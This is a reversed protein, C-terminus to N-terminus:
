QGPTVINENSHVNGGTTKIFPPKYVDVRMSISTSKTGRVCTLTYTYPSSAVSLVGLSETGNVSKDGNWNGSATCSVANTSSWKLTVPVDDTIQAKPPHQSNLGTVLSLDVTPPCVLTTYQSTQSLAGNWVRVYLTRNSDPISGLSSGGNPGFGQWDIDIPLTTSGSNDGPNAGVWKSYRNAFTSSDSVDVSYGISGFFNGPNGTWNILASTSCDAPPVLTTAVACYEGVMVGVSGCNTPCNAAASNTGCVGNAGSWNVTRCAPVTEAAPCAKLSYDFSAIRNAFDASTTQLTTGGASVPVSIGSVNATRTSPNLTLNPLLAYTVVPKGTLSQFTTQKCGTFDDTCSISSISVSNTNFIWPTNVGDGSVPAPVFSISVASPPYADSAWQASVPAATLVLGAVVALGVLLIRM